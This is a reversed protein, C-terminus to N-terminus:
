SEPAGNGSHLLDLDIIGYPKIGARNMTETMTHLNTIHGDATLLFNRIRESSGLNLQASSCFGYLDLRGYRDCLDVAVEEAVQQTDITRIGRLWSEGSRPHPLYFVDGRLRSAFKCLRNQIEGPRMSPFADRFLTGLILSCSSDSASERLSGVISIPVLKDSINNTSGPHLTYHRRSEKRIRQLHYRNGFLALALAKKLTLGYKSAYLSNQSINATGDDFTVIEPNQACSLALLVFSSIASAFYVAQYDLNSFLRRADRAYGPYKNDCFYHHAEHFLPCIREYAHAYKDNISYTYFFLICEDKSLSELEIIREILLAQLPTGCIFLRRPHM